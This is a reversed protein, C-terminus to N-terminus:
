KGSAGGMSEEVAKEVAKKIIESLQVPSLSSALGSDAISKSAAEAALAAAKKWPEVAGDTEVAGLVEVPEFSFGGRVDLSPTFEELEGLVGDLEDFDLEHTEPPHGDGPVAPEPAEAELAFSEAVPLVTEEEATEFDFDDAFVASPSLVEAPVKVETEAAAFDFSQDTLPLEAAEAAQALLSEAIGSPEVSLEEEVSSFEFEELLVPATASPAEEVAAEAEGGSLEEEISGFDFFDDSASKQEGGAASLPMEEKVEEEAFFEVAPTEEALLEGSSAEEAFEIMGFEEAPEPAAKASLAALPTELELDGFPEEASELSVSEAPKPEAYLTAAAPSELEFAEEPEESISIFREEQIEVPEGAAQEEVLGTEVQRPEAEPAKTELDKFYSELEIREAPSLVAPLM